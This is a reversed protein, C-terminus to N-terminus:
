SRRAGGNQVNMSALRRLSNAQDGAKDDRGRQRLRFVHRRHDRLVSALV